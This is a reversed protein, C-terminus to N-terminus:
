YVRGYLDEDGAIDNGQLGGYQHANDNIRKWTAGVDDSRFFGYQGGVSGIIYVAPHTKDPRRRASASAPWRLQPRSRCRPPDQTRSSTCRGAPPWRVEGAQGFVTRPAGTGSFTNVVTFSAGGNSSLYLNSGSTAYFYHANVRDAALM